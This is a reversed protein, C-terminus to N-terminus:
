KKITVSDIQRILKIAEHTDFPNKYRHNIQAMLLQRAATYNNRKMMIKALYYNANPYSGKKRSKLSSMYLLNYATDYDGKHYYIEGLLYEKIWSPNNLSPEEVVIKEALQLDGASILAKVYSYSTYVWFPYLKYNNETSNVINKFTPIYKVTVVSWWILISSIIGFLPIYSLRHYDSIKILLTVIIFFLGIIPLALYRDYIVANQMEPFIQLVPFLYIGFFLLFLTILSKRKILLFFITLLVFLLGIYFYIDMNWKNEFPYGFSLANPWVIRSLHNGLINFARPIRELLPTPIIGEQQTSIKFLYFLWFAFPINAAVWVGVMRWIEGFNKKSSILWLFPFFIITSIGSLKSFIGLYHFLIGLLFLRWMTKGSQRGARYLFLLSLLVFFVSLIDKQGSIYAVSEVYMPNLLFFAMVISACIEPFFPQILNTEKLNNHDQSIEKIWYYLVLASSLYLLVSVIHYGMPQIGFLNYEVVYLYDRVPLLEGWNNSPHLFIAKFDLPSLKTIVNNSVFYSLDDLLFEGFLSPYYIIVATVSILLPFIQIIKSFYKKM